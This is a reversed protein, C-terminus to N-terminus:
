YRKNIDNNNKDNMDDYFEIIFKICDFLDDMKLNPHLKEYLTLNEFYKEDENKSENEEKENDKIFIQNNYQSLIKNFEQETINKKYIRKM